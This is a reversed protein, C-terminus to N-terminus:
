LSVDMEQMNFRWIHKPVFEGVVVQDFLFVIKEPFLVVFNILDRSGDLWVRGFEVHQM